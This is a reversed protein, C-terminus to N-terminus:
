EASSVNRLLEAYSQAAADVTVLKAAQLELTRIETKVNEQSKLRPIHYDVVSQFLEFAKQPNPPVLKFDQKGDKDAATVAVKYGHAVMDLWEQLRPANNEVFLAIAARADATAKNQTGAPKGSPNGSQGPKFLWPRDSNNSIIETETSM